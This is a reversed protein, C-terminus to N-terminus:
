SKSNRAEFADLLVGLREGLQLFERHDDEFGDAFHDPISDSHSLFYALARKIWPELEPWERPPDFTKSHVAEFLELAILVRRYLDAQVPDSRDLTSLKGEIQPRLWGNRHTPLVLDVDEQRVHREEFRAVLFSLVEPTKRRRSSRLNEPAM